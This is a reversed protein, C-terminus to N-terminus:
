EIKQGKKLIKNHTNETDECDELALRSEHLNRDINPSIVRAKCAEVKNELVYAQGSL